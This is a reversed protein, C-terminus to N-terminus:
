DPKPVQEPESETGVSGSRQPGLLPLLAHRPLLQQEAAPYTTWSWAEIMDVLPEYSSRYYLPSSRCQIDLQIRRSCPPYLFQRHHFM